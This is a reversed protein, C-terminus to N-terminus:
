MPRACRQYRLRGCVGGWCSAARGYPPRRPGESLTHLADRSFATGCQQMRVARSCAGALDAQLQQAVSGREQWVHSAEAWPKVHLVAQKGAPKGELLARGSPKFAGSRAFGNSYLIVM